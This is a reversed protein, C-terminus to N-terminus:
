CIVKINTYIIFVIFHNIICDHCSKIPSMMYMYYQIRSDELHRESIKDNVGKAEEAPFCPSSTNAGHSPQPRLGLCSVEEM